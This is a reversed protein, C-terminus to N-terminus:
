GTTLRRLEEDLDSDGDDEPELEALTERLQKAVQALPVSRGEVQTPSDIERALSLSLEARVRDAPSLQGLSEVLALVAAEVSRAAELQHIHDVLKAKSWSSYTTVWNDCGLM